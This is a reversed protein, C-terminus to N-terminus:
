EPKETPKHKVMKVRRESFRASEDNERDRAAEKFNDLQSQGTDSIRMMGMKM